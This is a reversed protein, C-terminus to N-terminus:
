LVIRGGIESSGLSETDERLIRRRVKRVRM